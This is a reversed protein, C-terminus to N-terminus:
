SAGFLPTNLCSGPNEKIGDKRSGDKFRPVDRWTTGDLFPLQLLDTRLFFADYCRELFDLRRPFRGTTTPPKRYPHKGQGITHCLFVIYTYTTTPKLLKENVIPHLGRLLTGMTNIPIRPSKSDKKKPIIGCLSAM